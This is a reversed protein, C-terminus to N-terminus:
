AHELRYCGHLLCPYKGSIKVPVLGGGRATLRVEASASGHELGQQRLLSGFGDLDSEHVFRSFESGILIELPIGLLKEVFRNAYLVSKDESLTVAGEQMSEILLRYSYDASQLSFIQDGVATNVVLADVEGSYIANLADQAEELERRLQANEERIQALQQEATNM